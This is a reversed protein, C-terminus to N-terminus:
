SDGSLRQGSGGDVPVSFRLPRGNACLAATPTAELRRTVIQLRARGVPPTEPVLTAARGRFVRAQLQIAAQIAKRRQERPFQRLHESVLDRSEITPLPGTRSEALREIERLLPVAARNDMLVHNYQLLLVDKGGPRHLLHFELPDAVTPDRGSSLLGGAHELVAEPDDSPLATETLACVAGPRFQWYSRGGGEAEVLRAAMVPDCHSLRAIAQRLAAANARGDLWALMQTEIGPYGSQRAVLDICRITRDIPNLFRAGNKVLAPRPDRASLHRIM